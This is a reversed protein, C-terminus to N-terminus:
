SEVLSLKSKCRTYTNVFLPLNYYEKKIVLLQHDRWIKQSKQFSIYLTKFLIHYCSENWKITLYTTFGSPSKSRNGRGELSVIVLPTRIWTDGSNKWSFDISMFVYKKAYLTQTFFSDLLSVTCTSRLYQLITSVFLFTFSTRPSPINHNHCLNM